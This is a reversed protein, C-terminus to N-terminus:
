VLKDVIKKIYDVYPLGYESKIFEKPKFVGKLIGNEIYAIREGLLMAEIVDHTVHIATFRIKEWIRRLFSTAKMHLRPDLSKLPEDLLLVKPDIVLSRAIAVRQQEGGSLTSPERDLLHIIELTSAIERVKRDILEEKYKRVRLGYAINDYVNMHPFLGYEQPIIVFGRKEPPYEIINIDDVYIGGRSQTIFGALTYLFVTKGVGSPGMVILYEGDLVELRDIYLKFSKFSVELDEIVIM